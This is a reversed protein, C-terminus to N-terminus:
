QRIFRRIGISVVWFLTGLRTREAVTLTPFNTGAWTVWQAKSQNILSVITSDAVFDSFETSDTSVRQASALKAAARADVNAQLVHADLVAQVTATVIDDAFFVTVEGKAGNFYWRQPNGADGLAARLEGFLAAHDIQGQCFIRM